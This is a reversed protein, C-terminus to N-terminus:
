KRDAEDNDVVMLCSKDESDLYLLQYTSLLFDRENKDQCNADAFDNESWSIM